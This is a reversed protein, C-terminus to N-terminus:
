SYQMHDNLFKKNFNKLHYQNIFDYVNCTCLKIVCWKFIAMYPPPLLSNPHHFWIEWWQVWQQEAHFYSRYNFQKKVKIGTLSYGQKLVCICLSMGWWSRSNAAHHIQFFFECKLFDKHDVYLYSDSHYMYKYLIDAWKCIVLDLLREEFVKRTKSDFDSDFLNYWLRGLM